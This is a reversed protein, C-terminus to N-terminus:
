LIAKIAVGISTLSVNRFSLALVKIVHTYAFIPDLIPELPIEIMLSGFHSRRM